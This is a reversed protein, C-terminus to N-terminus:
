CTVLIKISIMRAAEVAKHMMGVADRIGEYQNSM